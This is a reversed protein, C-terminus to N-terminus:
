IRNSKLIYLMIKMQAVVYLDKHAFCPIVTEQASNVFGFNFNTILIQYIFALPFNRILVENKM